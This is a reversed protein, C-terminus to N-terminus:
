RVISFRSSHAAYAQYEILGLKGLTFAFERALTAAFVPYQLYIRSDAETPAQKHPSGRTVDLQM